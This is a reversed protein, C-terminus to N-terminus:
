KSSRFGRAEAVVNSIMSYLVVIGFLSAGYAGILTRISCSNLSAATISAYNALVSFLFPFVIASCGLYWQFFRRTATYIRMRKIIAKYFRPFNDFIEKVFYLASAVWYVGIFIGSERITIYHRSYSFGFFFFTLAFSGVLLYGRGTLESFYTKNQELSKLGIQIVTVTCKIM